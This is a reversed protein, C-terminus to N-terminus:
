ESVKYLVSAHPQLTVELLKAKGIQKREWLDRITYSAGALGLDKWEYKITQPTDGINFVALYTGKGNEPKASWVVTNDTEIIPRNGTSHQDVEIVEPNTLLSTTFRDSSPLDGGMMLPSRFISWLTIFTRQEDGTFASKRATGLGPRPGLYGVTLMDADPWRGASAKGVWRSLMAFQAKLGQSWENKPDPGWHDWVDNSVRWMNAYQCAHDFKEIPTPGPSLSLVIPRGTKQLATSLMRIESDLYPSSICDVKIFDVGWGAYLRAISDYYAQGAENDRIGYNDPNWACTDSTNAAESAQFRSDAIPLNKAVAERPIGRLIHIGFKLGLAHVSDALPKFGVEGTASPFRNAAPIYRGDKSLTYIWAPKGGSEPNQLFWGEDIVVYQWGHQKLNTAMWRANALFEGENISLGYSDWSNWGMPPTAAVSPSSSQAPLSLCSLIVVVLLAALRRM